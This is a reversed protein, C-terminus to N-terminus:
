CKGREKLTFGCIWRVISMEATDLEVEHEVTM